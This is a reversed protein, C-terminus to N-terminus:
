IFRDGSGNKGPYRIQRPAPDGDTTLLDSLGVMAGHDFALGELSRLTPEISVGTQFDGLERASANALVLRGDGGFVLLIENLSNEVEAKFDRATTSERLDAIMGNFRAALESIEQPGDEDVSADKLGQRGVEGMAQGIRSLEKAAMRSSVVISVKVVVGVALLSLIIFGIKWSTESAKELPTGVQIRAGPLRKLLGSRFIWDDSVVYNGTSLVM